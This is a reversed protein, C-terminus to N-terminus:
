LKFNRGAEKQDLGKIKQLRNSKWRLILDFVTDM